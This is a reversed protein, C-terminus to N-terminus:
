SGRLIKEMNILEAQFQQRAHDCAAFEMVQLHPQNAVGGPWWKDNQCMHWLRYPEPMEAELNTPMLAAKRM